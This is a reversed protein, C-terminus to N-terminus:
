GPFAAGIGETGSSSVPATFGQDSCRMEVNRFTTDECRQLLIGKSSIQVTEDLPYININEFKSNILHEAHFIHEVNPTLNPPLVWAFDINSFTVNDVLNVPATGIVSRIVSHAGLVQFDSISINKSPLSGRDEIAVMFDCSGSSRKDFQVDSIKTDQCTIRFLYTYNGTARVNSIKCSKAPQLSIISAMKPRTADSLNFAEVDIGDVVLGNLGTNKICRKQVDIFRCESILVDHKIATDQDTNTVFFLFQNM